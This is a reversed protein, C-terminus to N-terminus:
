RTKFAMRSFFGYLSIYTFFSIETEAHHLAPSGETAQTVEVVLPTGARVNDRALMERSQFHSGLCVKRGRSDSSGLGDGCHQDLAQYSGQRVGAVTM